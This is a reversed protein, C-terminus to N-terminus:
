YRLYAQHVHLFEVAYETCSARSQGVLSSPEM